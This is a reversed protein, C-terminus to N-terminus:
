SRPPLNCTMIAVWQRCQRLHQFPNHCIRGNLGSVPLILAALHRHHHRRHFSLIITGHCWATGQLTGAEIDRQSGVIRIGRLTELTTSVSVSLTHTNRAHRERSELAYTFSFIWATLLREKRPKKRLDDCRQTLDGIIGKMILCSIFCQCHYSYSTDFSDFM